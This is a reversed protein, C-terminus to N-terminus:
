VPDRVIVSADPVFIEAASKAAIPEAVVPVTVAVLPIAIEPVPASTVATKIVSSDLTLIADGVVASIESEIVTELALAIEWVFLIVAFKEPPTTSVMAFRVLEPEIVSSKTAVVFSSLSTFIVIMSSSVVDTLAVSNLEIPSAVVPLTVTELAISILPVVASSIPAKIVSAVFTIALIAFREIESVGVGAWNLASSATVVPFIIKGGPPPSSITRGAVEIDAPM